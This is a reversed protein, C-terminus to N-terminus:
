KRFSPPTVSPECGTLGMLIRAKSNNAVALVWAAKLRPMFSKTYNYMERRRYFFRQVVDIFTTNNINKWVDQSSLFLKETSDDFDLGTELQTLYHIVTNLTDRRINSINDQHEIVYQTVKYYNEEDKVLNLFVDATQEIDHIVLMATQRGDAKQQKNDLYAATGFTLIISITTAIVTLLLEKATSRFKVNGWLKPMRFKVNMAIVEIKSRLWM